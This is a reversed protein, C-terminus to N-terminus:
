KAADETDPRSPPKVAKPKELWSAKFSPRVYVNEGKEVIRWGGGPVLLYGEKTAVRLETKPEAM